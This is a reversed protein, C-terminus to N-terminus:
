LSSMVNGLGVYKSYNGSWLFYNLVLPKISYPFAQGLREFANPYLTVVYPQLRRVAWRWKHAPLNQSVGAEIAQIADELEHQEEPTGYYVVLNVQKESILHFPHEGERITRFNLNAVQEMIKYDDLNRRDYLRRYYAQMTEPDHPNMKRKYLLDDVISIGQNYDTLKNGEIPSFIYCHGKGNGNRNCRGFAQMMSDLPAKERLLLDPFDFDVGAEIIQTSSVHIPLGENLRTRIKEIVQLRHAPCLWTSIYLKSDPPLNDYIMLANGRTNCIALAQKHSAMFESLQSWKSARFKSKFVTVRRCSTKEIVKQIKMAGLLAPHHLPPLTATTFLVSCKFKTILNELAACCPTLFRVPLAQMEDIVIVSNVINHLKRSAGPRGSYLSEFFQEATTVVIPIDWNDALQRQIIDDEKKGSWFEATSHHALVSENGFIAKFIAATQDIITRYPAVYIIRRMGHHVAHGLAFLGGSITKGSGTPTNLSFAGKPRTAFKLCAKKIAQRLKLISDGVKGNKPETQNLLEYLKSMSPFVPLIANNEFHQSTDLSDADVLCSFLMVLHYYDGPADLYSLGDLYGSLKQKVETVAQERVGSQVYSKLDDFDEMGLHHGAIICALNTLGRQWAFVASCMKHDHLVDNWELKHGEELAFLRDQWSQKAKGIDHLYGALKALQASEPSIHAAFLDALNAVLCLHDLLTQREGSKNRSHAILTEV